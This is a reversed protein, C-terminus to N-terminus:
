IPGLVDREGDGLRDKLCTKYAVGYKSFSAPRIDAESLMRAFWFPYADSVKVEMLRFSEPMLLLGPHDAEWGGYDGKMKLYRLNRDFTLRFQPNERDFFALRDYSLRMVPSVKKHFRYYEIERLVQENMYSLDPPRTGDRLFCTAEELTLKARRKTVTGNVKKKIELFIRDGPFRPIGYSRLRMKEKYFPKTLSERIVDSGETDFYLNCISYTQGGICHDDEEMHQRILPLIVAMKGEDLIYKKEYRQFVSIVAM